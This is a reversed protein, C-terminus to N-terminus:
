CLLSPQSFPQFILTRIRQFKSAGDVVAAEHLAPDVASLASIYIISNWWHKALGAGYM